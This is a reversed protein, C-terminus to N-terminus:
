SNKYYLIEEYLEKVLASKKKRRDLEVKYGRGMTELEAKSLLSLEKKALSSCDKNFMCKFTHICKNVPKPRVDTYSTMYRKDLTVTVSSSTTKSISM